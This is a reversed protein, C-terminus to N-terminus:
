FIFADIKLFDAGTSTHIAAAILKQINSTSDTEHLFHLQVGPGASSM